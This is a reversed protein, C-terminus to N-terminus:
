TCVYIRIIGCQSHPYCCKGFRRAPLQVGRPKKRVCVGRLVQRGGLHPLPRGARPGRYAPSHAVVGKEPRGNRFRINGRRPLTYSLLIKRRSLTHVPRVANFKEFPLSPLVYNVIRWEVLNKSHLVPVGPVHNFSSAVMYFDSGVRIVDPDSYDSHIVPNTYKM